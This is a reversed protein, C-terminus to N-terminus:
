DVGVAFKNPDYSPASVMALIEGSDPKIAVVSGRKGVMAKEAAVQTEYEISLFLDRGAVSSLSRVVGLERGTADVEVIKKGRAGHLVPEFSKEIGYKGIIDGQRYGDFDEMELQAKTIEAMYGVLHAALPGHNYNRIPVIELSVGPLDYRREEIRAADDRKIDYAVVYPSFSPIALIRKKAEKKDFSVLKDLRDLLSDLDPIDERRLTVNFSARSSVLEVGNRDYIRGRHDPLTIQRLRNSDALARLNGGQVVQLYWLRIVLTLVAMFIFLTVWFVRSRLNRSLNEDGGYIFDM